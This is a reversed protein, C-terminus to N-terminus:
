CLAFYAYRQQDLYPHPPPHAWLRLGLPLSLSFHCLNTDKEDCLSLVGGGRGRGQESITSATQKDNEQDGPTVLVVGDSLVLYPLQDLIRELGRTLASPM